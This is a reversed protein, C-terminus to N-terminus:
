PTRRPLTPLFARPLPARALLLATTPSGTTDLRIAPLTVLEDYGDTEAFSRALLEEPDEEYGCFWERYAKAVRKPTDLLGERAPDVGAWLLLTRIAAEAQERTPRSLLRPM